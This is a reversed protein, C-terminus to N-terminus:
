KTKKSLFFKEIAKVEEDLAEWMDDSKQIYTSYFLEEDTLEDQIEKSPESSRKDEDGGLMEAASRKRAHTLIPNLHPLIRKEVKVEEKEKAAKIDRIIEPWDRHTTYKSCIEDDCCELRHVLKRGEPTMPTDDKPLYKAWRSNQDEQDVNSFDQDM